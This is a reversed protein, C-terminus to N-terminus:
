KLKMGDLIKSVDVSDGEWRLMKYLDFHKQLWGVWDEKVVSGNWAKYEVVDEGFWEKYKEVILAWCEMDTKLDVLDSFM